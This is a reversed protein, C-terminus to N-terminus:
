NTVKGVTIGARKLQNLGTIVERQTDLEDIGALACVVQGDSAAGAFGDRFLLTFRKVLTRVRTVRELELKQYELYLKSMESRYIGCKAEYMKAARSYSTEAMWLCGNSAGGKSAREKILIALLKQQQLKREESSVGSGDMRSKGSMTSEFCKLYARHAKLVTSHWTDIEGSVKLTREVLNPAPM